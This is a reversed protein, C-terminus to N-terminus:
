HMWRDRNTLTRVFAARGASLAVIAIVMFVANAIALSAGLAADDHFVYDTIAAVAFPGLAFSVLNLFLIVFAISQARMAPPAMMANGAHAAGWPLAAFVNVVILAGIVQATSGAFPWLTASVLMGAAGIIGVRVPGDLIGRRQYWDSIWGGGLVGLTGFVMTLLGQAMGAQAPTWGFTEILHTALWAALAFNATASATYGVTYTAYARANARIYAIVEGVPMGGPKQDRRTPERITLILLAVLLGPLGIIFFATQWPRIAGVVPLTWLEQQSVLGVIWGGIFYALGSGLFIGMSYVGMARSLKERDFYDAILSTAPAQLAAEGIGVGVRALLLKGFTGALGCVATALSWLTVGGFIINRRNGSDAMRALPIGVLTFFVAFPLGILYSMETLTLGLDRRIPQVLLSLILRDLFGSINALMLIGVVYWAYVESKRQTAEM